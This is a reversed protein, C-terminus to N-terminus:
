IGLHTKIAQIETKLTANEATLTEVDVILKQIAGISMLNLENYDIVKVDNHEKGYIYIEDDDDDIVTDIEVENGVVNIVSALLYTEKNNKTKDQYFIKLKDGVVVDGITTLTFKKNNYVVKEMISPLVDTIKSICEPYFLEVEQAKVGLYERGYDLEKKLKYKYIKTQNIKDYAETNQLTIFDKKLREDSYIHYQVTLMRTDCGIGYDYSGTAQGWNPGWSLYTFNVSQNTGSYGGEVWIKATKSFSTAGVL